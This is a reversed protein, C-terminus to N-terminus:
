SQLNLYQIFKFRKFLHKWVELDKVQKELHQRRQENTKIQQEQSNCKDAILHM